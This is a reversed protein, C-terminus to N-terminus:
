KERNRFIEYMIIAASVSANLSNVHGCMPINVLVDCNEKVLRSIGHGESGIVAAIKGKYDYSRYDISGEMELGVVWYGAKKLDNIAYVLNSALAVDVYEIAGTSVKAVTNNLRVSRDKPIIIGDVGTADASRLIAGLNHPDELSDLILITASKKESTKKILEKVDVYTYEPVVAVINQHHENFHKELYKKDVVKLTINEKECLKQLLTDNNDVVYVESIGRNNKIAEVVLNRGSINM